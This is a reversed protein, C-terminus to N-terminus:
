ILALRLNDSLYRNPRTGPHMVRHSYIVRGGASFRMVKHQDRAQIVHPRSGQHHLLAIGNSSGIRLYQGVATRYHTMGISRRLDGTDVGVQAKAAVVVRRGGKALWKGVKGDPANLYSDLVPRYPKFDTYKFSYDFGTM